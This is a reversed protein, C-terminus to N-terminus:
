RADKEELWPELETPTILQELLAKGSIAATMGIQDLAALDASNRIGGSAQWFLSPHRTICERYLTLNPGELAGDCQVDTCLVHQLGHSTFLELASWLSTETAQTWGRTQVMPVGVANIRVDFALCLKEPGFRKLWGAVEMPAELAASGVVVRDIGGRLLDEAISFSRIGGGVQLRMTGESALSLFINRNILTGERAGDLDVLHMWRTGLRYYRRLLEHPDLDYITEASFDGRLLRVCLGGRLDISPILKIM